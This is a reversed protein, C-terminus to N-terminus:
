CRISLTRLYIPTNVARVPLAACWGLLDRCRPPVSVDDFAVDPSTSLHNASFEATLSRAVAVDSTGPFYVADDDHSHSAASLSTTQEHENDHDHRQVADGHHHHPHGHAHVHPRQAHGAPEVIGTEAHSHAWWSGRSALLSPILLLVCCARLL